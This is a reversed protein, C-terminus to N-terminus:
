FKGASFTASEFFTKQTPGVPKEINPTINVKGFKREFLNSSRSLCAQYIM